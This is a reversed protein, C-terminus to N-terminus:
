PSKTWRLRCTTCRCVTSDWYSLRRVCSFSRACSCCILGTRASLLHLQQLPSPLSDIKFTQLMTYSLCVTFLPMMKRRLLLLHLVFHPYQLAIGVKSLSNNPNKAKGKSEMELRQRKVQDAPTMETWTQTNSFIVGAFVSPHAAFHSCHCVLRAAVSQVSILGESKRSASACCLETAPYVGERMLYLNRTDKVEKEDKSAISKARLEDATKRDVAETVNLERGECILPGQGRDQVRRLCKEAENKGGFQIFATGADRAIPFILDLQM